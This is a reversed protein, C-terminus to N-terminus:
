ILFNPLQVFPRLKTLGSVGRLVLIPFRKANTTTVVIASDDKMRLVSRDIDFDQADRVGAKEISVNFKKQHCL